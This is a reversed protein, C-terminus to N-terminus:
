LKTSLKKTSMQKQKQIQVMSQLTFDKNAFQPQRISNEIQKYLGDWGDAFMSLPVFLCM